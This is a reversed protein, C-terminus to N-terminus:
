GRLARASPRWPPGATRWSARPARAGGGIPPAAPAEPPPPPSLPAATVAAYVAAIDPRDRMEDVLRVFARPVDGIAEECSQSFGDGDDATVLGWTTGAAVLVGDDVFPMVGQAGGLHASATPAWLGLGALGVVVVVVAVVAVLRMM